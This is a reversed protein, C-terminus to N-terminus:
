SVDIVTITYWWAAAGTDYYYYGGAYQATYYRDLSGLYDDSSWIGDDDWLEFHVHLQADKLMLGTYFIADYGSNPGWTDYIYYTDEGVWYAWENYDLEYGTMGVSTEFYNEGKGWDGDDDVRVQTMVVKVDVTRATESTIGNISLRLENNGNGSPDAAFDSYYDMGDLDESYMIDRFFFTNILDNDEKLIVKIDMRPSTGPIAFTATNPGNNGPAWIFPGDKELYLTNQYVYSNSGGDKDVYIEFSWDEDAGWEHDEIMSLYELRIFAQGKLNLAQGLDQPVYGLTELIFDISQPLTALEGHHGSIVHHEAGDLRPSDTPVVGDFGPLYWPSGGITIYHEGPYESYGLSDLFTSGPQMQRASASWDGFIPSISGVYAEWTGHNPTGLMFLTNIREAWNDDINPDVAGKEILYRSILGGMSHAVINIVEGSSTRSKIMEEVQNALAPIDLNGPYVSADHSIAQIGSQADNFDIVELGQSSLVPIMTDFISGDGHWGPIMVVRPPASAATIPIMSLGLVLLVFIAKKSTM